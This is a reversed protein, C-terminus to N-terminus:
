GIQNLDRLDSNADKGLKDFLGAIGGRSLASKWWDV